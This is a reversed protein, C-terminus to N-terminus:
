KARYGGRDPEPHAQEVDADVALVPEGHQERASQAARREHAAHGADDLDDQHDDDRHQDPGGPGDIAPKRLTVRPTLSTIEVIMSFKMAPPRKAQNSVVSFRPTRAGPLLETVVRIRSFSV